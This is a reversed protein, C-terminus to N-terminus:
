KTGLVVHSEKLFIQIPKIYFEANQLLEFIM